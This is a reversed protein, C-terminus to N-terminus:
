MFVHWKRQSWRCHWTRPLIKPSQSFMVMFTVFLDHMCANLPYRIILCACVDEGDELTRVLVPESAKGDTRANSLEGTFATITISYLTFATLNGVVVLRIEESHRVLSINYGLGDLQFLVSLFQLLVNWFTLLHVLNRLNIFECCRHWHHILHARLHGITRGVCDTVWHSFSVSIHCWPPCWPRLYFSLTPFFFYPNAVYM